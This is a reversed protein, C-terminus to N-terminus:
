LEGKDQYKWLRTLSFSDRYVFAESGRCHVQGAVLLPPCHEVVFCRDDGLVVTGGELGCEGCNDSRSGEGRLWM